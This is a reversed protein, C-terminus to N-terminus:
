QKKLELLAKSQVSEASQSLAESESQGSLEVRQRHAEDTAKKLAEEMAALEQLKNSNEPKKVAEVQVVLGNGTKVDMTSRVQLKEATPPKDGRNKLAKDDVKQLKTVTVGNDKNKTALQQVKQWSQKAKAAAQLAKEQAGV